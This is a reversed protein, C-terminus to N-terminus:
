RDPRDVPDFQMLTGFKTLIARTDPYDGSFKVRRPSTPRNTYSSRQVTNVLCQIEAVNQEAARRSASTEDLLQGFMDHVGDSKAIKQLATVYADVSEQKGTNEV